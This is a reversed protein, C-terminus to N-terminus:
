RHALTTLASKFTKANDSRVLRPVGRRSCFRDFALLFDKTELSNTVELHIARVSMCTFLLAYYKRANAYSVIPGFYDVGTSQFPRRMEENVRDHPLPAFRQQCPKAKYRKCMRCQNLTQKVSRRAKLVWFRDRLKHMVRATGAHLLSRHLNEVILKTTKHKTPLVIPHREDYTLCVAESLWGKCRIIGQEDLFPDLNFLSSRTLIENGSSMALVEEYFASRQCNRIVAFEAKIMEDASFSGRVKVNTRCNTIFRLVYAFAAM